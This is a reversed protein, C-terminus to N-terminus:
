PAIARLASATLAGSVATRQGNARIVLTRPLEGGWDPDILYNIREPTADAYARAPLAEVGADHLRAAIADRQDISDTAIAILEMDRPHARQRKALAQLNPECYACDLSWLALVRVGRTPPKLLAPVDEANLASPAGAQASLPLALACALLLRGIV